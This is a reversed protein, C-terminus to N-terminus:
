ESVTLLVKGFTEGASLVRHAEAAEAIPFRAGIIPRVRGDAIMPWVSSVVEDVIATKGHPGDVPRGRLSTGIVHLRKAVAKAINFEAKIGGQMGIITMRGDPALADLNRDLYAAGMIDLIVDAGRGDTENNVRAVFDEDRYSILVDAGLEGCLELKSRSGATVAVRNGLATAVQVAHTGIGSAGGHVLLLEGEALRATMVINSWVTCAVEPLAAADPLSVGLPVPMVQGAPVAVYEAYGGGALLACVDQGVTWGSVGDGVNAIVGSVELGLINSAGPPPPYNGAAQLLDARNIGATSVKILVEGHGPSVDPVESWTLRDPSEAVIALM